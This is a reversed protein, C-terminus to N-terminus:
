LLVLKVQLTIRRAYALTPHVPHSTKTATERNFIKTKTLLFHSHNVHSLSQRFVHQEHSTMLRILSYNSRWELKRHPLTCGVNHGIHRGQYATKAYNRLAISKRLLYRRLVLPLKSQDLTTNGQAYSQTMRPTMTFQWHTLFCLLSSLPPRPFVPHNTTQVIAAASM